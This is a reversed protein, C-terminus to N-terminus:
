QLISIKYLFKKIEKRKKWLLIFSGFVLFLSCVIALFLLQPNDKPLLGSVHDFVSSNAIMYTIILIYLAYNQKTIEKTEILNDTIEQMVSDINLGRQMAKNVENERFKIGIEESIFQNKLSQLSRYLHPVQLSSFNKSIIRTEFSKLQFSIYLNLMYIFYYIHNSDDVIEGGYNKVGVFSCSDNLILGSSYKWVGYSRNIIADYIYGDDPIFMPETNLKTHAGLYYNFENLISIDNANIHNLRETEFPEIHTGDEFHESSLQMAVLTKASATSNYITYLWNKKGNYISKTCHDITINLFSSGDYTTFNMLWQLVDTQEGQTISAQELTIQDESKQLKLLKFNRLLNQFVMLEDVSYRKFDIKIHMTFFAINEQFIWLTLEDISFNYKDISAKTHLQRNLLLSKENEIFAKQNADTWKPVMSDYIYPKINYAEYATENQENVIKWDTNKITDFLETKKEYFKHPVPIIIKYTYEKLYM